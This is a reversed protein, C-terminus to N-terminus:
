TNLNNYIEPFAKEMVREPYKAVNWGKQAYLRQADQTMLMWRRLNQLNPHANISDLLWKSLGKGRFYPLIFVDALYAFTTYDSIIRAFGVQKNDHFVGFNLSNEISQQVIEFPINKAWYSEESLYKHILANDLKTTDTSITYNGDVIIFADMFKIM